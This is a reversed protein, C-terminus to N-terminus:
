FLLQFQHLEPKLPDVRLHAHVSESIRNFEVSQNPTELAEDSNDFVLYPPEV